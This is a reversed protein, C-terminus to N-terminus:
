ACLLWGTREGAQTSTAPRASAAGAHPWRDIMVRAMWSGVFRASRRLAGLRPWRDIRTVLALSDDESEVDHVLRDAMARCRGWDAFLQSLLGHEHIGHGM